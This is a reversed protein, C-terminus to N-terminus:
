FREPALIERSVYRFLTIRPSDSGVTPYAQSTLIISKTDLNSLEVDDTTMYARSICDVIDQFRRLICL